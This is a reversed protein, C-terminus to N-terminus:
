ARLLKAIQHLTRFAPMRDAVTAYRSPQELEMSDLRDLASIAAKKGSRVALKAADMKYEDLTKKRLQRTILFGAIGIGAIGAAIVILPMPNDAVKAAAARATDQAKYAVFAAREIVQERLHNDHGNSSKEVTLSGSDHGNNNDM